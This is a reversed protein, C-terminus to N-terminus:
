AVVLVTELSTSSSKLSSHSSHWSFFRLSTLLPRTTLDITLLSNLERPFIDFIQMAVDTARKSKLPWLVVFNTM